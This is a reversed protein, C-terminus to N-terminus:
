GFRIDANNINGSSTRDELALAETVLPYFMDEKKFYYTANLDTPSTIGPHLAINVTAGASADALAIAPTYFTGVKTPNWNTSSYQRQSITDQANYNFSTSGIHTENGPVGKDFQTALTYRADLTDTDATTTYSDDFEANGSAPLKIVFSGATTNGDDAYIHLIEESAVYCRGRPGANTYGKEDWWYNGHAYGNSNHFNSPLTITEYASVTFANTSDNLTYKQCYFNANTPRSVAWFVLPNKTQFIISQENLYTPSGTPQTGSFTCDADTASGNAAVTIMKAKINYPSSVDCYFYIYTGNSDNVKFVKSVRNDYALASYDLTTVATGPSKTGTTALLYTRIEPGGSPDFGTNGSAVGKGWSSLFVTDSRSVAEFYNRGASVQNNSNSSIGMNYENKYNGISLSYNSKYCVVWKKMVQLTPFISMYRTTTLSFYWASSDEFLYKMQFHSQGPYWGYNGASFTTGSQDNASEGSTGEDTIGFYAYATNHYPASPNGSQSTETIAVFHGGLNPTSFDGGIPVFWDANYGSVTVQNYPGTETYSTDGLSVAPDFLRGDSLFAYAKGAVVDVACVATSAKLADKGGGGGGGFYDSINSM